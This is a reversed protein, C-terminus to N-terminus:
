DNARVAALTSIVQTMTTAHLDASVSDARGAISQPFLHRWSGHTWFLIHARAVAVPNEWSGGSPVALWADTGVINMVVWGPRDNHIQLTVGQPDSPDAQYWANRNDNSLFERCVPRSEWAQGNWAYLCNNALWIEAKRDFTRVAGNPRYTVILVAGVIVILALIVGRFHMVRTTNM